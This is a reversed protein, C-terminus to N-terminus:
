VIKEKINGSVVYRYGKFVGPKVSHKLNGDFLVLLGSKVDIEIGDELESFFLGSAGKPVKLYYVFSWLSPWHDHEVAYDNSKYKMGWLNHLVLNKKEKKLKLSSIKKCIDLVINTLHNFGPKNWMKWDTMQAKINTQYNQRDGYDDIVKKINKNMETENLECEFISILSKLLFDKKKINVLCEGM